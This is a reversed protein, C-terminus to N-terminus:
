GAAPKTSPRRTKPLPLKAGVEHLQATGLLVVFPQLEGVFSHFQLALLELELLLLRLSLVGLFREGGAKARRLSARMNSTPPMPSTM